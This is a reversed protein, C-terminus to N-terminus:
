NNIYNLKNYALNDDKLMFNLTNQAQAVSSIFWLFIVAIFKNM